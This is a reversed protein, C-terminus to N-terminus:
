KARAQPRALLVPIGVERLVEDAVSGFVLKGLGSRGHTSMAVLDAKDSHALEVIMDAARGQVAEWSVDLAEAQWRSALQSLYGEAEKRDKETAQEMAEASAATSYVMLEPVSVELVQVLHVRAHLGKALDRVHPLVGEALESGDLPVLIRSRRRNMIIHVVRM